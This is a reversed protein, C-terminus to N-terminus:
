STLFTTLQNLITQFIRTQVGQGSAAVATAYHDTPIRCGHLLEIEHQRLLRPGHTTNVFPGTNIKHYSKPIVPVTTEHGHLFTMEFGHGQAKHRANHARLGAITKAIRAADERDQDGPPDLYRSVPTQHQQDPPQIHFGPSLTAVLIWRRRNSPEAWQDVPQTIHEHLSYGLSQLHQRILAGSLSDAYNPVNEILIAAPMRQRIIEIVPLFCDGTDGTEPKGALSKKARGMNSHSTCPIGALLIEFDPLDRPDVHRIDAQILTAQDHTHQWLDAFRPEIEIGAVIQLHDNGWAAASLTGAGAFCDLVRFSDLGRQRRIHCARRTPRIILDRHHGEIKLEHIDVLPALHDRSNIDIVPRLGGAHRRRSVTHQPECLRPGNSGAPRIRIGDAIAEITLSTGPTFGLPELRRSELWVRPAGRHESTRQYSLLPM